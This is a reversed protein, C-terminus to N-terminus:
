LIDCLFRLLLETKLSKSIISLLFFKSHKVYTKGHVEGGEVMQLGFSSSDQLIM